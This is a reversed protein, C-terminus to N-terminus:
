AINCLPKFTRFNCLQKYAINAHKSGDNLLIYTLMCKTVNSFLSIKYYPAQACTPPECTSVMQQQKSSFFSIHLM